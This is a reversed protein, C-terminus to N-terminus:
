GWRAVHNENVEVVVCEMADAFVRSRAIRNGSDNLGNCGLFRAHDAQVNQEGLGAVLCFILRHLVRESKSSRHDNRRLIPDSDKRAFASQRYEALRFLGLAAEPKQM